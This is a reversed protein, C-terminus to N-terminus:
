KIIVSYIDQWKKDKVDFVFYNYKQNYKNKVVTKFYRSKAKITKQKDM